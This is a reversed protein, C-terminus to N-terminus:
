RAASTTSAPARAGPAVGDPGIKVWSVQINTIWRTCRSGRRGRAHAAGRPLDPGRRARGKCTSRRRWTCSRCRCSSPSAAPRAAAARARAPPPAGLARAARRPRVHDHRELAPRGRHAADHVELWQTPRSRTPASSRACRTTSSRPRPARAAVGLGADRLRALYDDLPLGLTAAGQWVELASFAHVHIDPCRRRSRARRGRRLLRRRLGPPHRGAPLGRDRRAGVGRAVRRSSRTSAARPVARRAPEGRAQGELVRLLRLPLLLREHLQHEAHRRLHGRRRLGRAAAPRRRRLRARAGDGRARSCGRRDRGRRAREGDLELPCRTAASSSRCRSRARRAGLSGRARARARGGRPARAPLSPRTSGASSTSSTSRTSRSGRRSSWAARSADGRAAARARAVAGRPQRPRDHGALRRGLRRHRRRAAAPLRRLRPEAAGARARGAGLLSGRSPSRGSTSTSRRSPIRRGDAHGAERPLEPRDGGARARARRRAGADRAARRDAGRADRRHRDPDREHVPDRARGALRMTELRRAPIKDPSGLAPRGARRAPRRRRRSCSGWRRRCRGCRPSSTAADDRGPEPAAAARDRRARAARLARPVRADDRLRARRARRARGPLAARAQRRAHLAGGHLRGRRGRARDRAGRRRTLYAREGRRPPRAFTCYGCVDRCLTTLPIFVKPSYTVCATGRRAPRAGRGHPRGPVHLSDRLRPTGDTIPQRRATEERRLPWCVRLWPGASPQGPWTEASADSASAARCGASGRGRRARGRTVGQRQARTRRAVEYGLKLGDEM